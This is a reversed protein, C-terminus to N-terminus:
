SELIKKMDELEKQLKDMTDEIEKIRDEAEDKRAIEENRKDIINFLEEASVTKAYLAFFVFTDTKMTEADYATCATVGYTHKGCVSLDLIKHEAKYLSEAEINVLYDVNNVTAIVMYNTLM